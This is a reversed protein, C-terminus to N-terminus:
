ELRFNEMLTFLHNYDSRHPIQYQIRNLATSQAKDNLDVEVLTHQYDCPIMTFSPLKHSRIAEGLGCFM